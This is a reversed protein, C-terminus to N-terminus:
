DPFGAQRLDRAARFVEDFEPLAEIQHGLRGTWLAKLRQEKQLICGERGAINKQRFRHKETVAEVRHSLDVGAELTLYWLDDLDRPENRAPDSLAVVKETATENLGYVAVLRDEPVDEVRSGGAIRSALSKSLRLIQVPSNHRKRGQDENVAAKIAARLLRLSPRNRAKGRLLTLRAM